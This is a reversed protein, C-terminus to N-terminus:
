SGGLLGITPPVNPFVRPEGSILPPPEAAANAPEWASDLYTKLLRLTNDRSAIVTQNRSYSPPPGVWRLEYAPLPTGIDPRALMYVTQSGFPEMQGGRPTIRLSLNPDATMVGASLAAELTARVWHQPLDDWILIEATLKPNGYENREPWRAGIQELVQSSYEYQDFMANRLNDGSLEPNAVMTELLSPPAWGVSPSSDLARHPIELIHGGIWATVAFVLSQWALTGHGRFLFLVAAALSGFMAAFMWMGLTLVPLLRRIPTMALLLIAVSVGLVWGAVTLPSNGWPWESAGNVTFGAGVLGIFTLLGLIGGVNSFSRQM